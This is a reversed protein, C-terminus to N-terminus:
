KRAKSHLSEVWPTSVGGHKYCIEELYIKALEQANIEVVPFTLTYRTFSDIFGIVYRNGRTSTPFPRCIDVNLIEWSENALIPNM